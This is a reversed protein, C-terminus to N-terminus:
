RLSCLHFRERPLWQAFRARYIESKRTGIELSPMLCEGQLCWTPSKPIRDLENPRNIPLVFM